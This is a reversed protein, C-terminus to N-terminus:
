SFDGNTNFVLPPKNIYEGDNWIRSLFLLHDQETKFECFDGNFGDTCSCEFNKDPKM